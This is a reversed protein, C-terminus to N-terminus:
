KAVVIDRGRMWSKNHNILFRWCKGYKRDCGHCIWEL